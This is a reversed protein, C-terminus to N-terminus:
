ANLGELTKELSAMDEVNFVKVDRSVKKIFGSLAKGPGVEVFTDVGDAIMRRITEEWKVSSSVQKILLPKIDEKSSVYDATVNTIVPIQMDKVEVNELEKALQEKEIKEIPITIIVAYIIGIILPGILFINCIVFSLTQEVHNISIITPLIVFSLLVSTFIHTRRWVEPYDMTQQIRIGFFGNESTFPMVVAAVIMIILYVICGYSPKYLFINKTVNGNIWFAGMCGALIVFSLIYFLKSKIRKYLIHSAIMIAVPVFIFVYMLFPLNFKMEKAFILSSIVHSTTFSVLYKEQTTM